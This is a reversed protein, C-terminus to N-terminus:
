PQQAAHGRANPRPFRGGSPPYQCHPRCYRGRSRTHKSRQFHCACDPNCPSRHNDTRHRAPTASCQLQLQSGCGIPQSSGHNTAAGGTAPANRQAAPPDLLLTYSRVLRGTSWQTELVLDVFPEQIPTTSSLRLSATGDANRQLQVQISRAANSYDMGQARFTEASAIQAVLSNIEAATAQPSPLKLRCTRAWHPACM